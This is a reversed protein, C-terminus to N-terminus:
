LKKEHFSPKIVTFFTLSQLSTKIRLIAINSPHTGNENKWLLAEFRTRFNVLNNFFM